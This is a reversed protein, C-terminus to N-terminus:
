GLFGRFVGSFRRCLAYCARSVAGKVRYGAAALKEAGVAELAARLQGMPMGAERALPHWQEGKCKRDLYTMADFM